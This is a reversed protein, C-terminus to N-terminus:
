RCSIFGRGFSTEQIVGGTFADGSISAGRYFGPMVVACEVDSLEGPLLCTERCDGLRDLVAVAKGIRASTDDSAQLITAALVVTLALSAAGRHCRFKLETAQM